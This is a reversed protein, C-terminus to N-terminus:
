LFRFCSKKEIRALAKKFFGRKTSKGAYIKSKASGQVLQSYKEQQWKRLAEISHKQDFFKKFKMCLNLLAM